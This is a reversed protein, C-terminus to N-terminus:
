LMGICYRKAGDCSRCGVVGERMGILMASNM